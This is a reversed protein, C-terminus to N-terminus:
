EVLADLARRCHLYLLPLSFLSAWCLLLLTSQQVLQVQGVLIVAWLALGLWATTGLSGRGASGNSMSSAQSELDEFINNRRKYNHHLKRLFDIVKQFGGIVELKLIIQHYKSIYQSLTMKDM